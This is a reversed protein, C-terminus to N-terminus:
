WEHADVQECNEEIAEQMAKLDRKSITGAFKLANQTNPASSESSSLMRTFDLVRKQLDSPLANLERMIQKTIANQM